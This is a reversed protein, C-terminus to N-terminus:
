TYLRVWKVSQFHELFIRRSLLKTM